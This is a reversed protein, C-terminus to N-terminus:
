SQLFIIGIYICYKALYPDLGLQREGQQALTASAAPSSRSSQVPVMKKMVVPSGQGVEEPGAGGSAMRTFSPKPAVPPYGARGQPEPVLFLCPCCLITFVCEICLPSM